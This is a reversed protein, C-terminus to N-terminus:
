LAASCRNLIVARPSEKQVKALTCMKKKKEALFVFRKM